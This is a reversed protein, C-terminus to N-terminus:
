QKVQGRLRAILEAKKGIAKLGKRKLISRLREVTMTEYSDKSTSRTRSGEKIQYPESTGGTSLPAPKAQEEEARQQVTLSEDQFSTSGRPSSLMAAIAKSAKRTNYPYEAKRKQGKKKQGEEAEKQSNVPEAVQFEHHLRELEANRAELEANCAKLEANSAELVSNRNRLI